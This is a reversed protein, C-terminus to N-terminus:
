DARALRARQAGESASEFSARVSRFLKEIEGLMVKRGIKHATGSGFGAVQDTFTRNTYFLLTDDGFPFAGAIIQLSNFSQGVYYQRLGAVAYDEHKEIMHHVLVVTPREQISQIQWTLQSEVSSSADAPFNRFARYFTPAREGVRRMEEVALALEKAPHAEEGSRAYPAIGALGRQRYATVRQGLIERYGRAIAARQTEVPASDNAKAIGQLQGIESRSFNFDSGPEVKLLKDLERSDFNVRAFTEASAAADPIAGRSLITKDVEEVGGERLRGFVESFPATIIIAVAVALEKKSGEKLDRSVIAGQMLADLDSEQFGLQEGVERIQDSAAAAQAPAVAALTLLVPCTVLAAFRAFRM